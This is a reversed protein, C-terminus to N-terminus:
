QGTMSRRVAEWVKPDDLDDMTLREIEEPTYYDKPGTSQNQKMSGMTRIEKKPKTKRYIDYVKDIPINTNFQSAFEKFEKGEYEEKTVGMESLKNARETNHRHEALTKFLAKERKTMNEIGLEALRDVEEVVDDFGGSIINEADHKALVNVDEDNYQPKQAIKIGKKTYFDRFTDKIEGVDQKGTGAKLVDTLDEYDKMKREYERRIKAETRAVRKGMMADVEEQTYTKVPTQETTAEVNESTQEVELIENENM